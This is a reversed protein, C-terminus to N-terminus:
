LRDEISKLTRKAHIRSIGEWERTATRLPDVSLETGIETLISCAIERLKVDTEKFLTLVAPEAGSGIAILAKTAPTREAPKKLFLLLSEAAGAYGHQGLTRIATTRVEDIEDKLAVMLSPDADTTGWKELALVSGARMTRRSDQVFRLLRKTVVADPTADPHNRLRDWAEQHRTQDKPNNLIRFIGELEDSLGDTQRPRHEVDPTETAAVTERDPSRVPSPKRGPKDTRSGGSHPLAAPTTQSAESESDTASEADNGAPSRPLSSPLEAPEQNGDAASSSTDPTRNWGALPSEDQSETPWSDSQAVRSDGQTTSDEAPVRTGTRESGSPHHSTAGTHLGASGASTTAVPHPSPSVPSSTPSLVPVTASPYTPTSLNHSSFPSPAVAVPASSGGCGAIFTVCLGTLTVCLGPLSGRLGPLSGRPFIRCLVPSNGNRARGHGLGFRAGSYPNNLLEQSGM